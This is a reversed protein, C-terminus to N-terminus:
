LNKLPHFPLYILYYGELVVLQSKQLLADHMDRFLYPQLTKSGPAATLDLVKDNEKPDLVLPPIMSSLSQLYIYGNKYIELNQIQSENCNLLILADKYWPVLEYEIGINDFIKKLDEINYKLNNVRLTAFRKELMGSLIKDVIRPNFTNNLETIFDLPLKNKAKAITDM